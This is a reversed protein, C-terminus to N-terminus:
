VPRLRGARAPDAPRGPALLEPPDVGAGPALRDRDQAGGAARLLQGCTAVRHRKLAARVRPALGRLKSVPLGLGGPEPGTGDDTVTAHMDSEPDPGGPRDAVNASVVGGPERGLGASVPM